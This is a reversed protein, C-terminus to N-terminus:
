ASIKTTVEDALWQYLRQMEESGNAIMDEPQWQVCMIHRSESGWAEPVGDNAEAYIDLPLKVENVRTKNAEALLEYQLKIPALLKSHRSNVYFQNDNDFLKRLPTNPFVNLRHAKDTDAQSHKIPTEICDFNRYLKLGLVGAVVQAGACIGLIPMNEDLAFHICLVYAMHCLSAFEEDNRPDTYYLEPFDFKGDPLVLGQCEQLQLTCHHFTLFRISVGTKALALVSNCDASYGKKERKMLLGVIPAKGSPPKCGLTEYGSRSLMLEPTTMKNICKGIVHDAVYFARLSPKYDVYYKM